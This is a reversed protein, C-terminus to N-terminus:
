AKLVRYPGVFKAQLKPNEGRRRCKNTLWVWDGPAYLLPEKRDKQRVEMQSQRLAEHVTQLKRQVKLAHEHAPFFETPPPHSELQDPLRLEQGLMLTNAPERTASNPHRPIGEDAPSAAPGVRGTGPDFTTGELLGRNNQEVIGNAHPHYPATHTKGVNWLQCLKAMLQSEFQAGQYMHIQELLGLYCFVREDLANAVVLATADPLALADQWQTFHDTLVLVWKNERPTVAFPELLDM